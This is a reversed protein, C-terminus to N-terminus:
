NSEELLKKVEEDSLNEIEALAQAVEDGRSSESLQRAVIESLGAATPAEFIARLPVQANLGSRIRSILQTALLSHGGLDFFNDERAVMASDIRLELGAAEDLKSRRGKRELPFAPVPLSGFGQGAWYDRGSQLLDNM